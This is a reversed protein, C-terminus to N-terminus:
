ALELVVATQAGSDNGGPADSTSDTVVATRSDYHGGIIVLRNRHKGPLWAIVNFTPSSPCNAHVFPDLRVQLGPISGYQALIFDRAATVGHGPEPQDSCSQRTRFNQLTLATNLIPNSDVNSLIAGIEPDTPV